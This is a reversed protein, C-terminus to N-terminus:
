NSEPTLQPALPRVPYGAAIWADLGGRLPRVRAVGHLILLKAMRASSAENPCTCYVIVEAELALGATQRAVEEAPLQVANPISRPDLARASRTRADLLMPAPQRQLLAHLEEPEVRAMRLQTYLRHRRWWKCLVYVALLVAILMLARGGFQGLRVLLISIQPAAVAGLVLPAMIWLASGLVSLALFRAWRMRHAGALPVAIVTLGPVFKAIVLTKTGWRDFRRHTDGVCTDPSLSIRCLLQMVRNGYRRGALFWGVDTLVCTATAVIFVAAARHMDTAAAAGAVLLLPTAPVPLGLQELLVNLFVAALGSSGSLAAFAVPMRTYM